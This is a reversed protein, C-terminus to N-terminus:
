PLDVEALDGSNLRREYERAVSIPLAVRLTRGGPALLDAESSPSAEAEGGGTDIRYLARSTPFPEAEDARARADAALRDYRSALRRWQIARDADNM